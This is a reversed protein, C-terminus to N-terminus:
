EKPAYSDLMSFDVKLRDKGGTDVDGAWTVLEAVQRTDRAPSDRYLIVELRALSSKRQRILEKVEALTRLQREGAVRYRRTPDFNGSKAMVKLPADGLVEIPLTAGQSPAAEEKKEKKEDASTVAGTMEKGKGTGAGLGFGGEGGLGGGGGGFLWLAVLWGAAVGGLVRLGWRPWPPLKQGFAVSCLVQVLWSLLFAGIAAAGVVALVRVPLDSGIAWLGVGASM